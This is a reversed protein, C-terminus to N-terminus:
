NNTSEPKPTDLPDQLVWAVCNQLSYLDVNHTINSYNLCGEMTYTFSKYKNVCVTNYQM